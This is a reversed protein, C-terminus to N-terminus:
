RQRSETSREIHYGIWETYVPPIAQTLEMTTMWDIEMARERLEKEGAYQCRGHVGVVKALRGARIAAGDLSRFRPTWIHHACEMPTVPFSTIFRRHRQVDLGFMSGCLRFSVPTDPATRRHPRRTGPARVPRGPMPATEVNEVAWPTGSARLRETIADLMWATGKPGNRLRDGGTVKSFDHCPPSAHILDFGDLEAELADGQVFSYPYNPQAVIDIGVITAEPFARAYGASAGGAGCFLDLIMM